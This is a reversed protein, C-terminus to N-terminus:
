AVWYEEDFDKGLVSPLSLWFAYWSAVALGSWCARGRQWCIAYSHV